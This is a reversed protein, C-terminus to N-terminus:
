FNPSLQEIADKINSHDLANAIFARIDKREQLSMTDPITVDVSAIGTHIVTNTGDTSLKPLTVKVQIKTSKNSTRRVLSTVQLFGAYLGTSQEAWRAPSDQGSQAKIVSFTKNVPTAQGDALVMTSIAPM